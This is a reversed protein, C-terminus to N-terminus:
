IFFQMIMFIIVGAIIVLAFVQNQKHKRYFEEEAKEVESKGVNENFEDESCLYQGLGQARVLERAVNLDAASVYLEAKSISNEDTMNCYGNDQKMFVEIGNETLAKYINKVDTESVDKSLKRIFDYQM